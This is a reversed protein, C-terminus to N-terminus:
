GVQNQAQGSKSALVVARQRWALWLILCGSAFITLNIWPAAGALGAGGFLAYYWLVTVILALGSAAQLWARAPKEERLVCAFVVGAVLTGWFLPVGPIGLFVQGVASMALGAPTSWVIGNWVPNFWDVRRRRALWINIGTVSIVTLAFGFVVYLVKMPLGAFHGFHLRYVSFIAQRGAPGDSFGVKDLYQGAADFRYQEAYILRQPHVAGVM